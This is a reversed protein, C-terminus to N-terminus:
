RAWFGGRRVLYYECTESNKLKLTIKVRWDRKLDGDSIELDQWKIRRYPALVVRGASASSEM